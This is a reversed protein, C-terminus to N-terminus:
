KKEMLSLYSVPRKQHTTVEVLKISKIEFDKSFLDRLDQESFQNPGRFPEKDSSVLLLFLSGPKMWKNLNQIYKERETQDLFHFCGRDFVFDYKGKVTLDLIDSVILECSVGATKAKKKATEIALDSIDVGIVKFDNKALFIAENGTGCGLDLALGPRITQNKVLEVLNSEAQDVDWPTKKDQYIKNWTEKTRFM